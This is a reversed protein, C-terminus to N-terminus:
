RDPMPAPVPARAPEPPPPPTNEPAVTPIPQEAGTTINFDGVVVGGFDFSTRYIVVLTGDADTFNTNTAIVDSLDARRLQAGTFDAYSIDSGRLNAKKLNAYRLNAGRLNHYSLDAGPCTTHEAPTPNPVITCGNITLPPNAAAIGTGALGLVACSAALLLGRFGVNM